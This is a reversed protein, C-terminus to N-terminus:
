SGPFIVSKVPQSKIIKDMLRHAPYTYLNSIEIRNVHSEIKGSALYVHAHIEQHSLVHAPYSSLSLLSLLSLGYKHNVADLIEKDSANSPLEVLPFEYLSRWIDANDRRTLAIKGDEMIIAYYFHRPIKSKSKPKVPRVKQVNNDFALCKEKLPCD